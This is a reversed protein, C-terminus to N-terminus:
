GPNRRIALGGSFIRPLDLIPVAEDDLLFSCLSIELWNKRDRPLDCSQDDRVTIARPYDSLWLCGYQLPEGEKPQYTVVLALNRDTSDAPGSAEALCRLDVVPILEGRWSVLRDCDPPAAPVRFSKAEAIVEVFEHRAIAAPCGEGAALLVAASEQTM